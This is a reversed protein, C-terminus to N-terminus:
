ISKLSKGLAYKINEFREYAALKNDFTESYEGDENALKIKLTWIGKYSPLYPSLPIGNAYLNYGYDQTIDEQMYIRKVHRLNILGDEWEIWM